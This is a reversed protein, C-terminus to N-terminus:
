ARRSSARVMLRTPVVVTAPPSEDGVLRAFIQQAALSGRAMPDQHIATIPPDVLGAYEIDDYAVLSLRVGSIRMAHLAGLTVRNNGTRVATPPEPLERWERLWRAVSEPRHPGMGVLAPGPLGLSSVVEVFAARRQRATWIGPAPLHGPDNAAVMSLLRRCATRIEVDFFREAVQDVLGAM